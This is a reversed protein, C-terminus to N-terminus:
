RLIKVVNANEEKTQAHSEMKHKTQNAKLASLPGHSDLDLDALMQPVWLHLSDKSLQQSDGQVKM